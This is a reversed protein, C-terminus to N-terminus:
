GFNIEFQGAPQGQAQPAVVPTGNGGLNIAPGTAAPAGNSNRAVAYVNIPTVTVKTQTANNKDVYAEAALDAMNFSIQVVDGAQLGYGAVREALARWCTATLPAEKQQWQQTNKDQWSRSFMLRLDCVAVSSQTTYKLEPTNLLRGMVTVESTPVMVNYTKRPQNPTTM